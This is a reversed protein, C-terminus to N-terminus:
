AVGGLLGMAQAIYCLAVGSGILSASRIWDERQMARKANEGFMKMMEADSEENIYTESLPKYGEPTKGEELNVTIMVESKILKQKEEDKLEDLVDKGWVTMMIDWLTFEGVEGSELRKTYATGTKALWRTVNKGGIQFNYAERFRVFRYIMKNKKSHLHAPAMKNVNLQQGLNEDESFYLIKKEPRLSTWMLFGILGIGILILIVVLSFPSNLFNIIGSFPKLIGEFLSAAM